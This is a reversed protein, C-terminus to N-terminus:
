RRSFSVRPGTEPRPAIVRRACNRRANRRRRRTTLCSSSVRWRTIPGGCRRSWARCRASPATRAGTAGSARGRDSCPSAILAVIPDVSAEAERFDRWPRGILEERAFGMQACLGRNAVEIRGDRGVVMIAAHSQEVAESLNRSVHLQTLQRRAVLWGLFPLGLALWVYFTGEVAARWLEWGWGSADFELGLIDAPGSSVATATLPAYAAIVPGFADDRPGDTIPTGSRLRVLGGALLAPRAFVAGPVLEGVGGTETADALVVVGGSDPQVRLLVVSRLRVDVAKLRALRYKSARYSETDLDLRTGTLRRLDGPEFAAISRRAEEVLSARMTRDRDQYSWAGVAAGAVVILVGAVALRPKSSPSKSM